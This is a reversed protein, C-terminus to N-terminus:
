DALLPRGARRDTAGEVQAGRPRGPLRNPGRSLCRSGRRPAPPLVAGGSGRHRPPPVVLPPVSALTTETAGGCGDTSSIVFEYVDGPKTGSVGLDFYHVREGRYWGDRLPHGESTTADADVIPCNVLMGAPITELGSAELDALSRIARSDFGDPVLVFQVDWLDSYGTDEPIADLLAPHGAIMRPGGGADFGDIFVWIPALAVSGDALLPTESGFDLFSSPRGEITAAQRQYRHGSPAADTGAAGAGYGTADQASVDSAAFVGVAALLAYVVLGVFGLLTSGSVLAILADLRGM